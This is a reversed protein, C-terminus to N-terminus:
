SINTALMGTADKAFALIDSIQAGFFYRPLSKKLEVAPLSSVSQIPM